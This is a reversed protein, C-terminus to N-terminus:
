GSTVGSAVARGPPPTLLGKLRRLARGYRMAAASPSLGLRAAAEANTLGDFDRLTVVERDAPPLQAVARRVAVRGEDRAARSGPSSGSGPVQDLAATTEHRVARCGAGLHRRHAKGIRQRVLGYLWLGGGPAAPVPAARAEAMADLLVEQLLDSPDVRRALAPHLKAAVYRRLWARHRVFLEALPQDASGTRAPAAPPTPDDAM